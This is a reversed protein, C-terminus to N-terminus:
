AADTGAHRHRFFSWDIDLRRMRARLTHPNVKLLRAAGMCGEIRGQTAALASEIHQRMADDLTLLGAVQPPPGASEPNRSIAPAIGTSLAQGLAIRAGSGLLTAREVVSELERVNGPWDHAMLRALDDPDPRQPAFGFRHATIRSFHEVLEPIDQKRERLPPVQIPFGAIRYWLDERFRGDSIMAPLDRHTAAIIRVCVKISQEGGVREFAGEQLVRLLRVQAAMPLEGVEDLLLTGGHAREFWGRRQATAGTFAGKEHGFLESDILEPAIAGCNVRLFPKSARPSQRHIARAILEKGTGTEGFIVVPMKSQAVVAVHEMVAKLGRRGCIVIHEAGGAETEAPADASATHASHPRLTRAPPAHDQEMSASFPDLLAKTIGIHQPGFESQPANHLVLAGRVGSGTTLAGALLSGRINGGLLLAIIEHPMDGTRHHILEGCGAWRDLLKRHEPLLPRAADPHEASLHGPIVGSRKATGENWDLTMVDVRAVPMFKRARHLVQGATDLVSAGRAVLRWADLLLPTIPNM